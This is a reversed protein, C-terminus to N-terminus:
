VNKLDKDTLIRKCDICQLKDTWVMTEVGAILKSIKKIVTVKNFIDNGCTCKVSPSSEIVDMPISVNQPLEGPKM